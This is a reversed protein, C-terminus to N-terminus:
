FLREQSDMLVPRLWECRVDLCEMARTAAVYLLNMEADWTRTGKSRELVPDFDPGIIVNNWERGKSRHATTLIVQARSEDTATEFIRIIEEVRGDFEEVVKIAQDLERAEGGKEAKALANEWTKLSRVWPHSIRNREGEKLALVSRIMSIVDDNNGAIAFPVGRDHLLLAERILARNTRYIRAHRDDRHVHGIVTNMQDSGKIPFDPVDRKYSLIRNAAEAIAPGFRFSQSMPFGTGYVKQLADVANRWQYIAQHSDGVYISRGAGELAGLIVPNADQAEDLMILDYEELGPSGVMQWYKLYIDFGLPYKSKSNEPMLEFFLDQLYQLINERRDAAVTIGHAKTPIHKLTMWPDPSTTFARMGSQILDIDSDSLHNGLIERIQNSYVNGFRRGIKNLGLKKHALGHMTHTEALGDLKVSADNKIERNYALYLIRANPYSDKIARGIQILTATKGSGAAALAKIAGEPHATGSVMAMSAEIIAQQERTPKYIAM